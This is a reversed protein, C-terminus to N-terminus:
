LKQCRYKSTSWNWHIGRRGGLRHLNGHSCDLAIPPSHIRLASVVPIRAGDQGAEAARVPLVLIVADWAGPETRGYLDASSLYSYYYQNNLVNIKKSSSQGCSIWAVYLHWSGTLSSIHRAPRLGSSRSYYSSIHEQVVVFIRFYLQIVFKINQWVHFISIHLFYAQRGNENNLRVLQFM